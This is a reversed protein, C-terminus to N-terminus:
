NLKYINFMKNEFLLPLDLEMGAYSVIYIPLKNALNYIYAIQMFESKEMKKYGAAMDGGERFGVMKMRDIWQKGYAQNFFLSTGEKFDVYVTRESEVRFGEIAPPVIFVANLDSSTRAWTQAEIWYKNQSNSLNISTPSKLLLIVSLIVGVITLERSLRKFPIYYSLFLVIMLFTFFLFFSNKSMVGSYFLSYSLALIITFTILNSKKASNFLAGVALILSLYFLFKSSRFLQFQIITTVPLVESFFWGSFFLILFGLGIQYLNRRKKPDSLDKTSLLFLFILVLTSVWLGWSWNSPFVHHASRISLLYLWNDDAFFPMSIPLPNLWKKIFIPSITLFFIAMPMSAQWSKIRVVQDIYPVFLLLFLYIASLPHLLFSIGILFYAVRYKMKFFLELALLLMPLTFMRVTFNVDITNAGGILEHKFSVLLVIIFAALHNNILYFSLRYAAFFLFALSLVYVIFFLLSLEIEFLIQLKAFLSWFFSMYYRKQEILLDNPYLEPNIYSKVFPINIAHDYIGYMYTNFYFMKIIVGLVSALVSKAVLGKKM